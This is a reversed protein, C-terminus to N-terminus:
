AGGMAALMGTLLIAVGLPLLLVRQNRASLEKRGIWVLLPLSVWAPSGYILGMSTGVMLEPRMPDAIPSSWWLAGYYAVVACAVSGWLFAIARVIPM